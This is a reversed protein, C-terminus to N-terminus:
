TKFQAVFDVLDDMRATALCCVKDAAGYYVYLTDGKVVTGQPFVVNDVDGIREYEMEPELIPHSSRAIVRAPEELDLLAIGARYIGKDDKAHYILM